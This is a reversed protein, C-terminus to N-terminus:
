RVSITRKEQQEPLSVLSPHFRRREQAATKNPIGALTEFM